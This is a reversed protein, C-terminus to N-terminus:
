PLDRLGSEKVWSFYQVKVQVARAFFPADQHFRDGCVLNCFSDVTVRFINWDINDILSLLCGKTMKM